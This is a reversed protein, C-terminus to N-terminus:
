VNKDHHVEQVEVGLTGDPLRLRLHDQARIGDVSKVIMGDKEAICYGRALLAAPSRASLADGLSKLILREREMRGTIARQMREALDAPQQRREALRRAFRGPHMRDRLDELETGAHELRIRLAKGLRARAERLDALLVARDPVVHEAAASPTPARLDAALDALTIDTEHGVASVVPTRSAAIAHVVDPHNFPFLDEFSGGGRAVIIVDVTGDIRRIAAAIEEHALDGQVPTPSVVIGVPFRRGIVNRIDQLVAGTESTVVGIRQPFCPLPRKREEAFVGEEALERKWREVLLHKEGAGAPRIDQVYFQYKGQPGYTGVHGFVLVELGNGPQFGLNRASSKWMVCQILWSEAADHESLSFYHHGRGHLKYNTIEGRVWIDQLRRDDLLEGIIQSVESVRLVAPLKAAPEEDHEPEKAKASEEGCGFWDMLTIYGRGPMDLM